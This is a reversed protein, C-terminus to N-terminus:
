TRVGGKESEELFPPTLKNRFSFLVLGVKSKIQYREFLATRYSEVSKVSVHMLDAMQEYTFEREDCVLTLFHMERDSLVPKKSNKHKPDFNRVRRLIDTINYYGVNVVTDIANRLEQATCNKHLFGRAGFHYADNIIDEDFHQTLLLMKSDDEREELARLVDIGNKHPMSYDLLFLEPADSLPLAELFANGHEFEHSVKFRGMKEILERLAHRVIQHDDIIGIKITEM